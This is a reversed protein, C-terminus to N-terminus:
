KGNFESDSAGSATDILDRGCTGCFRSTPLVVSGCSGCRAVQVAPVPPGQGPPPAPSWQLTQWHYSPPVPRRRTAFYVPLGIALGLVVLAGVIILIEPLGLNGM